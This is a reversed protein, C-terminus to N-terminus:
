VRSFTSIAPSQMSPTDNLIYRLQVIEFRSFSLTSENTSHLESRKKEPLYLNYVM